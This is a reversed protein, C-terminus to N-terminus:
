NWKFLRSFKVIGIALLHALAYKYGDLRKPNNKIAQKSVIFGEYFSELGLLARTKDILAERYSPDISLAKNCADLSQQYKGMKLFVMGLIDWLEKWKDPEVNTAQKLVVAAEKLKGSDALLSGYHMLFDGDDKDRLYYAKEWSNIAVEERSLQMESCGKIFWSRYVGDNLELAKSTAEISAKYEGSFNLAIAYDTWIDSDGSTGKIAKELYIKAHKHKKLILSLKGLFRSVDVGTPSTRELEQVKEFAHYSNKYEGLIYCSIGKLLWSSSQSPNLKIAKTISNLAPEYQKLKLLSLSLHQWALCFDSKLKVAQQFCESARNLENLGEFAFGKNCYVEYLHDKYLDPLKPIAKDYAEIADNYKGLYTLACAMFYRAVYDKPNLSCAQELQKKANENENGLLYMIGIAFRIWAEVKLGANDPVLDGNIPHTIKIYQLVEEYLFRADEWNGMMALRKADSLTPSVKMLLSSKAIEELRKELLVNETILPEAFQITSIKTLIQSNIDKVDELESRISDLTESPLRVYEKQEFLTNIQNGLGHIDSVNQLLSVIKSKKSENEDDCEFINSIGAGISDKKVYNQLYRSFVPFLNFGRSVPFNFEFIFDSIVRELSEDIRNAYARLYNISEFYDKAAEVAQRVFDCGIIKTMLQSSEKNYLDLEVLSSSKSSSDKLYNSYNNALSIFEEVYTKKLTIEKFEGELLKLVTDLDFLLDGWRDVAVQVIEENLGQKEELALAIVKALASVIEQKSDVILDRIKPLSNYCEHGKDPLAHAYVLSRTITAADPWTHYSRLILEWGLSFDNKQFAKRSELGVQIADFINSDVPTNGGPLLIWYDLKGPPHGMKLGNIGLKKFQKNAKSTVTRFLAPYDRKQKGTRWTEFVLFGDIWHIPEGRLVAGILQWELSKASKFEAKEAPYQVSNGSFIFKKLKKTRQESM